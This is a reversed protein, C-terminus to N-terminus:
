RGARVEDFLNVRCERSYERRAAARDRELEAAQEIEEPTLDNEGFSEDLGKDLWRDYISWVSQNFHKGMIREM